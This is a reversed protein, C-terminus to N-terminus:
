ATGEGSDLKNLFKKEEQEAWRTLRKNLIHTYLKSLISTLAVGRYSDPINADGKKHIPVIISKSWERPFIREDYLKNFLHVLFDTVSENAHKPMESIKNPGASKALNLIVYIPHLRTELSQKGSYVQWQMRRSM